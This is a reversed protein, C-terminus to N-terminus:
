SAAVLYLLGFLVIWLLDVMHWYSAVGRVLAVRRRSSRSLLRTLALVLGAGVVLHLLHIGTLVFYLTFFVTTTPELGAGLLHAYEGVKVAAFVVACALVGLLLRRVVAASRGSRHAGVAAVMLLSSTLLVVTNLAGLAPRLHAASERVVEPERLRSVLVGVFFAGFVTLDGLLFVWLGPEGPVRPDSPPRPAPDGVDGLDDVAAHEPPRGLFHPLDADTTM